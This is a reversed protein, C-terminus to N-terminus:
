RRRLQSCIVMRLWYCLRGWTTTPTPEVEEPTVPKRNGWEIGLQTGLIHLSNNMDHLTRRMRRENFNLRNLYHVVVALDVVIVLIVVAVVLKFDATADAALRAAAAASRAAASVQEQTFDNV